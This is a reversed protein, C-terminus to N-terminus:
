LTLKMTMVRGSTYGFAVICEYVAIFRPRYEPPLWIVRETHSSIWLDNIFISSPYQLSTVGIGSSLPSLIPLSGLVARLSTSDDFFTLAYITNGIDLTQQLVGSGADWLKVTRDYSASVLTKGDPAFAVAYVLGSHGELTQLLANWDHNMKPLRRLWRCACDRFQRKVMSGEPAFVLTSCYTQLPAQEIASRSYLIFRKMDYVFRPLQPCRYLATTSELSVIAHIGESVKKMWGLTELWHLLHEQLFRHGQDNDDLQVNSKQLHQIWYSLYM